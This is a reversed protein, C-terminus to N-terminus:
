PTYGGSIPSRLPLARWRDGAAVTAAILPGRERRERDPLRGLGRLPTGLRGINSPFARASRPATESGLLGDARGRDWERDRLCWIAPGSAPVIGAAAIVQDFTDLSNALDLQQFAFLGTLAACAIWAVGGGIAVANQTSVPQWPASSPMASGASAAPTAEAQQAAEDLNTASEASRSTASGRSEAGRCLVGAGDVGRQMRRRGALGPVLYM